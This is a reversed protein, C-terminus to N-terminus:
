QNNLVRRIKFVFFYVAGGILLLLIIGAINYVNEKHRTEQVQGVFYWENLNYPTSSYYLKVGHFKNNYFILSNLNFMFTYPQLKHMITHFRRYMKWRQQEDFTQRATELIRDAEENKFSIYNSGNGESQTSHFIQFPDPDISMSWALRVADFRQESVNKVFISWDLKRITMKIGVQEVHEKIIDAIRQHYDRMNHILYEFEFKVGNKERIGDGDLDIWGAEDLLKAAAEPDYKHPIIKKNFAPSKPYFPGSTISGLGFHIQALIKAQPILMTMAKRVRYDSFYKSKNNWGIYTYVLGADIARVFRNTFDQSNTEPEVWMTPEISFDVDVEGKLLAKLAAQQNLIIIFVIRDLYPQGPKWYPLGSQNAWYNSTKELTIAKSFDWKKFRYPGCSVPHMNDAHRNFERGFAAKDGGFDAERYRHAPLISIGACIDFASFYPKTYRFAVSYDSLKRVSDIEKYYSRLVQANVYPNMIANYSFMVDNATLFRPKKKTSDHWEVGKRIHFIFMSKPLIAPENWKRNGLTRELLKIEFRSIRKVTDGPIATEIVVTQELKKIIGSYSKGNKLTLKKGAIDLNKVDSLAFTFTTIPSLTVGANDQATIKGSLTVGNQLMVIDRIEWSEAIWPRYELTEPDRNVLSDTIYTLIMNSTQDNSLISNLVVPNGPMRVKIEGGARPVARARMSDTVTTNFRDVQVRRDSIDAQTQGTDPLGSAASHGAQNGTEVRFIIMLVFFVMIISVTLIRKKRNM